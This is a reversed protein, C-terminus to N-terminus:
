EQVIANKAGMYKSRVADMVNIHADVMLRRVAQSKQPKGGGMNQNLKLIQQTDALLKMKVV